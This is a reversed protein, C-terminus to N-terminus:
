HDICCSFPYKPSTYRILIFHSISCPFPFWFNVVWTSRQKIKFATPVNSLLHDDNNDDDDNDNDDNDDDDDDDGDNNDDNDDNYDNDDNDNDDNDGDGDDNNDDNWM